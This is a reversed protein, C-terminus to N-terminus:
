ADTEMMTLAHEPYVSAHTSKSDGCHAGKLPPASMLIPPVFADLTGYYLTDPYKWRVPTADPLEQCSVAEDNMPRGLFPKINKRPIRKSGGRAPIVCVTM